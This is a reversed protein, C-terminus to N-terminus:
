MGGAHTAYLAVTTFDRTSPRKARQSDRPTTRGIGADKPGGHLRPACSVPLGRLQKGDHRTHVRKRGLFSIVFKLGLCQCLTALITVPVHGSKRAGRICRDHTM